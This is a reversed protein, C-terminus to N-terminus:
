ARLAAAGAGARRGFFTSDGLSIGSVYGGTAIGATCRGSAFLGPIQNGDEDLVRANEDTRMGGLTFTAYITGSAARLDVAGFLPELPEVFEARKHFEPDNGSAAHRNYEAVTRELADAPLGVDEALERVTEAVWTV